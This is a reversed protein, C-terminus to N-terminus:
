TKQPVREIGLYKLSTKLTYSFRASKLVNFMYPGHDPKQKQCSLKMIVYYRWNRRILQTRIM